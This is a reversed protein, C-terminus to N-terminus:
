SHLQPAPRNSRIFRGEREVWAIKGCGPCRHVDCSKGELLGVVKDEHDMWRDCDRCQVQMTTPNYHTARFM